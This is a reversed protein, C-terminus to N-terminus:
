RICLGRHEHGDSVRVHLILFPDLWLVPLWLDHWNYLELRALLILLLNERRLQYDPWRHNWFVWGIVANGLVTRLLLKFRQLRTQGLVDLDRVEVTQRVGNTSRCNPSELVPM